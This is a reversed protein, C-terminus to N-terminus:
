DGGFLEEVDVPQFDEPDEDVSEMQSYRKGEPADAPIEFDVFEGNEDMDRIHDYEAESMAFKREFKGDDTEIASTNAIEEM